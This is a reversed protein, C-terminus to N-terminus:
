EFRKAKFALHGEGTRLVVKTRRSGREGVLVAGYSGVREAALGFDAGIRGIEARADLAFGVDEPVGCQVTGKGTVLRLTTGPERVFAQMDGIRTSLDLDGRHDFAIVNGRGTDARVPGGCREFRLDGRGTHVSTSGTRHGITVHGNGRVAVELAIASPLRVAALELALLATSAPPLVPGRLVLTRPAAADNAVALTFPIGELERLQEATDAARRVGVKYDVVRADAGPLLVDVNVTGNEIEIRVTDVDQGIPVIASTQDVSRHGLEGGATWAVVVAAVVLAGFGLVLLRGAAAPAAARDTGVPDPATM